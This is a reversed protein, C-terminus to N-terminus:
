NERVGSYVGVHKVPKEKKTSKEEKRSVKEEKKSVNEEKRSAKEEKKKKKEAKKKVDEPVKRKKAAPKEAQLHFLVDAVFVVRLNDILIIKLM